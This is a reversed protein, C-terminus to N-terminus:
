NESALEERYGREEQTNRLYSSLSIILGIGMLMSIVGFIITYAYTTSIYSGVIPSISWGVSAVMAQIGFLFGRKAKPTNRSTISMVLPEIGGAALMLMSYIIAFVTLNHVFLLPIAIVLSIAMSMRILKLKSMRDGLRGIMIGSFATAFGALGSIAGTVRSSGVITGRVEQVYLPLFPLFMSRSMRLVFLLALLSAMLGIFIKGSLIPENSVGVVEDEHVDVAKKEKVVLLVVVFNVLMMAAGIFFTIQYGLSEAIFGGIVPGTSYGLFTSSSLFGLAYSMRHDPTNTAILTTAATVTGTFLGQVVRLILIQSPTTALGMLTLVVFAAFVARLMMSKRGFRDSLMGWIPAMIAMGIAPLSNILGTYMNLQSTETIGMEQIYYPIFPLCLGFGMLSIIQSFWVVYLNIKWREM